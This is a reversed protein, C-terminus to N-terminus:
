RGVQGDPGRHQGSARALAAVCQRPARLCGRGPVGTHQLGPLLARKRDHLVRVGLVRGGGRPAEPGDAPEDPPLDPLARPGRKLTVRGIPPAATYPTPLLFAALSVYHWLSPTRFYFRGGPKLVRAVEAMFRVPEEVHELVYDSWVLDFAADEFPLAGGEGTVRAEDLQRNALVDPDPDCGSILWGEGRLDRIPFVESGPLDGPGAGLNLASRGPVLERRLIGYFFLTGSRSSDPYFRKFTRNSVRM